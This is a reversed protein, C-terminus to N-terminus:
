RNTQNDQSKSNEIVKNKVSRKKNFQQKILQNTDQYFKLYDIIESWEAMFSQTSRHHGDYIPVCSRSTWNMSECRFFIKWSASAIEFDIKAWTKRLSYKGLEIQAGFWRVIERVLKVGRFWWPDFYFLIKKERKTCM